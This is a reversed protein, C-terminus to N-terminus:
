PAERIEKTEINIVMPSPDYAHSISDNDEAAIYDAEVATEMKFYGEGRPWVGLILDGNALRLWVFGSRGDDDIPMDMVTKTAEISAPWSSGLWPFETRAM